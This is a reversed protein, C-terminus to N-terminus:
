PKDGEWTVGLKNELFQVRAKWFGLENQIRDVKYSLTILMGLVFGLLIYKM